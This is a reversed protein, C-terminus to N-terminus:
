VQFFDTLKNSLQNWELKLTWNVDSNVETSQHSHLKLEKELCHFSIHKIYLLYQNLKSSFIQWNVIVIKNLIKLGSSMLISSFIQGIVTRFHNQSVENSIHFQSDVVTAHPVYM